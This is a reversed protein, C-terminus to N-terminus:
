TGVDAHFGYNFCNSCSFNSASTNGLSHCYTHWQMVFLLLYAHYWRIVTKWKLLSCSLFIDGNTFSQSIFDVLFKVVKKDCKPMHFADYSRYIMLVKISMWMRRVITKFYVCFMSKNMSAQWSKLIWVHLFSKWEECIVMFKKKVFNILQLCFIHFLPL